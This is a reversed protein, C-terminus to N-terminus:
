NSRHWLVGSLIGTGVTLYIDSFAFGDVDLATCDSFPEGRYCINAEVDPRRCVILSLIAKINM